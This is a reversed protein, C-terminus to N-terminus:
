VDDAGVSDTLTALMPGLLAKVRERQTELTFQPAELRSRQDRASTLAEALRAITVSPRGVAVGSGGLIAPGGRALCVVPLGRSLAEAVVWGGEEHTSPFLFVDADNSMMELLAVRPRWGKFEVRDAIRLRECLARLRREDPGGGCILLRWEPLLGICRVALSVGKWPLLRGAYLATPPGTARSSGQGVADLVVNPMLQAKHRHPSPLWDRTEHNNVLILHARRWSSRALPNLYRGCLRLLTRRIEGLTGRVGFSSILKWPTGVGASVPGYIMPLGVFGAVSGLWANAWTLHWVLDFPSERAISRAKALAAVQWGIYGYVYRESRDLRALRRPLGVYTFTLRDREPIGCLAEEIPERNRERTIIHTEGIGALLRAWAWGVGPESGHRPDCASSLVLFRPENM